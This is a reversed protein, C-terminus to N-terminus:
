RPELGPRVEVPPLEPLVLDVRWLSDELVCPVQAHQDPTVGVVDVLAYKGVIQAQYVQPVFRPVTRAPVLMAWPAIQKGSAAGYRDARKHLNSKARESLLEFLQKADSEHGNFGRLVEVFERVAGDPTENFPAPECAVLACVLAIATVLKAM